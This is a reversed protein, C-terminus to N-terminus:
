ELYILLVNEGKVVCVRKHGMESRVALGESACINNQPSFILGLIFLCFHIRHLNWYFDINHMSLDIRHMHATVSVQVRVCHRDWERLM